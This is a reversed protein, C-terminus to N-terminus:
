HRRVHCTGDEDCSKGSISYRRQAFSRYLWRWLPMSFPLHLPLALWWLGVLHRSLYRGADAGGYQAGAPTVLWLQEMLQDYSLDPVFQSVRPDHLSLYSLQNRFDFRRLREVQSRCFNCRGDWIVVCTDPLEHPDPLHM